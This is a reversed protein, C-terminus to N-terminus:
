PTKQEQEPCPEHGWKQDKLLGIITEHNKSLPKIYLREGCKYCEFWFAWDNMGQKYGEKLGENRGEDFGDKRIKAETERKEVIGKLYNRVYQGVTMDERSAIEELKKIDEKKLRFSVTPNKAYYKEQSPYSGNQTM